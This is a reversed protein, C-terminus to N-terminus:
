KSMIKSYSKLIAIRFEEHFLIMKLLQKSFHGTVYKRYTKKIRKKKLINTEKKM